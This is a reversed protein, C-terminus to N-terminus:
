ERHCQVQFCLYQAGDVKWFCIEDGAKLGEERCYRYWGQGVRCHKAIKTNCLLKWLRIGRNPVCVLVVQQDEDLLEAVIRVPLVGQFQQLDYPLDDPIDIVEIDDEINIVEQPEEKIERHVQRREQQLNYFQMMQLLRDEFWQRDDHINVAINHINGAPDKFQNPHWKAKYTCGTVSRHTRQTPHPPPDRRFNSASPGMRRHNSTRM